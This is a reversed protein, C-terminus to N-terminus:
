HPPICCGHRAVSSTEPRNAGRTPEHPRAKEPERPAHPHSLDRAANAGARAAARAISGGSTAQMREVASCQSPRAASLGILCADGRGLSAAAPPPASIMGCPRSGSLRAAQRHRCGQSAAPARHREGVPNHGGGAVRWGGGGPTSQDVAGSRGRLAAVGCGASCPDDGESAQAPCLRAAGRSTLGM